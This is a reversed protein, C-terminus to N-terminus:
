HMVNKFVVNIQPETKKEWATEGLRKQEHSDIHPGGGIGAM